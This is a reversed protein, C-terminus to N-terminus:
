IVIFLSHHYEHAYKLIRRFTDPSNINNLVIYSIPKGRPLELIHSIHYWGVYTIYYDLNFLTEVCFVPLMVLEEHVIQM